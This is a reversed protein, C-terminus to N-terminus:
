GAIAEKAMACLEDCSLLGGTQLLSYQVGDKLWMLNKVEMVMVEDSGWSFIVEGNEEAEVDAETMQYDVPVIKNTYSYYYIDVGAFSDVLTGNVGAGEYKEQWFYVIDGDKEYEFMASKFKDVEGTKEDARENNVVYGTSYSYGNEFEQVLVPAYGVDEICEQETPMSSYEKDASSFWGTLVGSAFATSGLLFCAAVAVIAVLKKYNIVKKATNKMVLEETQVCSPSQMTNKLVVAHRYMRKEFDSIKM